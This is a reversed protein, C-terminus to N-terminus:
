EVYEVIIAGGNIAQTLGPDVVLTDGAANVYADMFANPDSGNPWPIPIRKGGTEQTGGLIKVVTVATGELPFNQVVGVGTTALTFGERQIEEGNIWNKGTKQRGGPLLPTNRVAAFFTALATNRLLSKPVGKAM